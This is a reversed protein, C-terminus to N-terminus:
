LRQRLHASPFLSFGHFARSLVWAEPFKVGDKLGRAGFATLSNLEEFIFGPAPALFAPM